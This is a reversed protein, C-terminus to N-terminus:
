IHLLPWKSFYKLFIYSIKWFIYIYWVFWYPFYIFCSNTLVHGHKKCLPFVIIEHHTHTNKCLQHIYSFIHLRMVLTYSCWIDHYPYQDLALSVCQQHSHFTLCCNLVASVVICSSCLLMLNFWVGPFIFCELSTRFLLLILGSDSCCLMSNLQLHKDRLLFIYESLYHYFTYYLLNM